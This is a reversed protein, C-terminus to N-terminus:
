FWNRDEEDAEDRGKTFVNTQRTRLRWPTDPYIGYPEYAGIQKKGTDCLASYPNIDVKIKEGRLVGIWYETCARQYDRRENTEHYDIGDMYVTDFNEFAALALMYPVSNNFYEHQPWREIIEEYPYLTMLQEIEPYMNITYATDGSQELKKVALEMHFPIEAVNYRWDDMWFTRCRDAKLKSHGLLFGTFNITWIEDANPFRLKSSSSGRGILQVSKPM